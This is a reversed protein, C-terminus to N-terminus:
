ETVEEADLVFRLEPIRKIDISDTLRRRLFPSARVLGAAVARRDITGDTPVRITYHVRAHRYDVSLTVHAVRVSELHPDGIEDRLTDSLERRVLDELRTHRHGAGEEPVDRSIEDFM